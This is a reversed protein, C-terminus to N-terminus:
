AGYARAAQCVHDVSEESLEPYLPLSLVRRALLETNPLSGVGQGFQAYPTQLHAPLPYHVDTGVGHEALHAKLGDRDAAQIVFLHFVGDRPPRTIWGPLQAIYREALRRRTANWADLHQLKVRLVAAQLEDMRSVTSHESSIYRQRWGYMRLSRAREAVGADATLLAGADGFAGLNKTPYFSFAAADGLTGVQRQDPTTAGHAQACDELVKVGYAEARGRISRMDAAHGYLHVVVVARTRRTIRRDIEAPDLAHTAPDVDCFVPRGGAAVVAAVPPVGANATVLVDDGPQVGLAQLGIKLADTGSSLGVVEGHGGHYAAFGREFADLEPGLLFWGSDLVRAIAADVESRIAKVGPALVNFPV